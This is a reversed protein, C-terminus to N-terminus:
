LLWGALGIAIGILPGYFFLPTGIAWTAFAAVDGLTAPRPPDALGLKARMAGTNEELLEERWEGDYLSRAHRGRVFGRYVARPAVLVGYSFAGANLFWAAWHKGCGAGIEFGGIEAEGTFDTGYQALVHHLDHLRIARKRSATNPFGLSLPGLKKLTVWADEYGGDGFGNKELYRARNERLTASAEYLHSAEETTTGM